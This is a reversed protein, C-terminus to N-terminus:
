SRGVESPSRSPSRTRTHMAATSSATAARRRDDSTAATRARCSTATAPLAASPWPTAPARLPPRQAPLGSPRKPRAPRRRPAPRDLLQAALQLSDSVDSPNRGCIPFLSGGDDDGIGPLRGHDDAITRAYKALREVAAAFVPAAPDADSARGRAGASLLRAHLPPLADLARRPRRRRPDALNARHAGHPRTAGMRPAGCSQCRVAPSMSRWRRASCIRTRASTARSTGSSSRSSVISGSCSISPGRHVNRGGGRRDRAGGFFFHLAWIWSLSRLALELMSAWNMGTSRRTRECGATSTRSSPTATGAPRRDALLRTRAHLWTQHRNLEWVIKHDGCAPTSIPSAAGSRRRRAAGTCPISTGTSRRRRGGDLVVPRSLGASRVSRRRRSGGRRVAERRRTPITRSSRARDARGHRRISSSARGALRSTICSRMTRARGTAKVCLLRDGAARRSTPVRARALATAGGNRGARWTPWAARRGARQGDRCSVVTERADMACCVRRAAHAPSM